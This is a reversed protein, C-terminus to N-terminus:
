RLGLRLVWRVLATVFGFVLLSVAYILVFWTWRRPIGSSNV